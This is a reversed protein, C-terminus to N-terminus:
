VDMRRLRWWAVVLAVGILALSVSITAGPALDPRVEELAVSRAVEALGVPLFRALSAVSSALAMAAVFGLGIVAAGLTSAAVVSGLMTVAVHCMVSLWLVAGLQGWPLAAQPSFFLASYLWAGVIALGIALGFAMGLAVFKAWIVAARSVPRSLVLDLTGRRREGAISGMTLLIAAIGGVQTVNRILMDVVDVVGLEAPGLEGTGGFMRALSPLFRVILPVAVGIVIFLGCLAALRYTRWAEIIEKTLLERYGFTPSV